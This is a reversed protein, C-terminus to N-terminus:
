GVVGDQYRTSGTVQIDPNHASSDVLNGEFEFHGVLGDKPPEALTAPAAERWHNEQEVVNKEPLVALAASIEQRLQDDRQQQAPSAM